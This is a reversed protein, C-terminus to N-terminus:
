QKRKTPNTPTQRQEIEATKKIKYDMVKEWKARVKKYLDLAALADEFPSHPVGAPQIERSLKETVLDRLKRPWLVGDDFRLKMFPEYKATDRTLQWPHRIGLAHLDNKLAHGVLMRGDLQHLVLKRLAPLDMTTKRLDSQSIGSVFSRYDTIEVDPRIYEDLVIQGDWDVLTVRALASQCGNEGVGVMECDMAIYRQKEQSSLEEQQQSNKKDKKNSRNMSRESDDSLSATSCTDVSL